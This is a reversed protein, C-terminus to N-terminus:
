KARKLLEIFDGADELSDFYVQQGRYKICIMDPSDCFLCTIERNHKDLYTGQMDPKSIHRKKVLHGGGFGFGGAHKKSM